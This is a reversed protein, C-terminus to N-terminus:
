ERFEKMHRNFETELGPDMEKTPTFVFSGEENSAQTDLKSPKFM